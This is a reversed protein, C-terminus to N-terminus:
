GTTALDADPAPAPPDGWLRALVDTMKAEMRVLQEFGGPPLEIAVAGSERVDM